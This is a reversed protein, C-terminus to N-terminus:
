YRKYEFLEKDLEIPYYAGKDLDFFAKLEWVPQKDITGCETTHSKVKFWAYGLFAERLTKPTFLILGDQAIYFLCAGKKFVKYTKCNTIGHLKDEANLMYIHKGKWSDPMPKYKPIYSKPYWQKPLELISIDDPPTNGFIMNKTIGNPNDTSYYNNWVGNKKFYHGGKLSKLEAIKETFRGQMTVGSIYIDDVDHNEEEPAYANLICDVIKPLVEAVAKNLEADTKKKSM